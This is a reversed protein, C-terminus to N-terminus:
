AIAFAYFKIDAYTPYCRGARGVIVCHHGTKKKVQFVQINASKEPAIIKHETYEFVGALKVNNCDFLFNMRKYYLTQANPTNRDYGEMSPKSRTSSKDSSAVMIVYNKWNDNIYTLGQDECERSHYQRDHGGLRKYVVISWERWFFKKGLIEHIDEAIKTPQDLFIM